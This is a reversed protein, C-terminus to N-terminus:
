PLDGPAYDESTQRCFDREAAAAAKGKAKGFAALLPDAASKAGEDPM